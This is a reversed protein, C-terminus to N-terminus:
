NLHYSLHVSRTRNGRRVISANSYFNKIKIDIPYLTSRRRKNDNDNDNDDDVSVDRVIYAQLALRRRRTLYKDLNVHFARTTNMEYNLSAARYSGWQDHRRTWTKMLVLSLPDRSRPSSRIILQLGLPPDNYAYTVYFLRILKRDRFYYAASRRFFTVNDLQEWEDNRLRPPTPDEREESYYPRINLFTELAERSESMPEDEEVVLVRTSAHLHQLVLQHHEVVFRLVVFALILVLLIKTSVFGM